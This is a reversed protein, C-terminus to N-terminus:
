SPGVPGQIGIRPLIEMGAQAQPSLLWGAVIKWGREELLEMDKETVHVSAAGKPGTPCM